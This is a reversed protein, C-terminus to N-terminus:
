ADDHVLRGFAAGVVHKSGTIAVPPTGAPCIDTQAQAVATSDCPSAWCSAASCGIRTGSVTHWYLATRGLSAPIADLGSLMLLHGALSAAGYLVLAGAVTYGTVMRPHRLKALPVMAFTVAFAALLLKGFGTLAIVWPESAPGLSGELDAAITGTAFTGGAAWYFSPVAFLIAWVATALAYTNM